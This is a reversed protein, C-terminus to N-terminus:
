DVVPTVVGGATIDVDIVAVAELNAELYLVVVAVVFGCRCCFALLRVGFM